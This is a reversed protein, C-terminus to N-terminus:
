LCIWKGVPACHYNVTRALHDLQQSGVESLFLLRSLHRGTGLSWDRDACQGITLIVGAFTNYHPLPADPSSRAGEIFDMDCYQLLNDGLKIVVHRIDGGGEPHPLPLSAHKGICHINLM